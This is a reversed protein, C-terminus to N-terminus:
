RWFPIDYADAEDDEGEGEPLPVHDVELLHRGPALERADIMALWGPIGSEPTEYLSWDPVIPEGDLRVTWVANVCDIAKRVEKPDPEDRPKVFSVGGDTFPELGTCLAAMRESDERADYPLFLRVWDDDIEMGQVTPVVRSWTGDPTGYHIPNVRQESKGFPYYVYDDFRIVGLDAFVTVAFIAVMAYVFGTIFFSMRKKSFNSAFTFFIPAYLFGLTGYYGIILLRRVPRRFWAPLKRKAVWRDLVVGSSTTLVLVGFVTYFLLQLSAAPFIEHLLNALGWAVAAALSVAAIMVLFMFIFAFVSSALRDIRRGLDELTPMREDYLDRALPGLELKEYDIPAPSANRLGWIAVWLGRLLFHVGFTTILGYAVLKGVYYLAFVIGFSSGALHLRQSAFWSDLLGPLQLLSFIIAVSILVELERTLVFIGSREESREGPDEM